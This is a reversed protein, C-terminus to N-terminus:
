RDSQGRPGDFLGVPQVDIGSYVFTVLLPESLYEIQDSVDAGRRLIRGSDQEDAGVSPSFVTVSRIQDIAKLLNPPRQM